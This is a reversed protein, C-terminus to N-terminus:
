TQITSCAFNSIEFHFSLIKSPPKGNPDAQEAGGSAFVAFSPKQQAATTFDFGKLPSSSSSAATSSTSRMSRATGSDEDASSSITGIGVDQEHQLYVIGDPDRALSWAEGEQDHCFQTLSDGSM